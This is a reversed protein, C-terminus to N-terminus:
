KKKEKDSVEAAAEREARAKRAAKEKELDFTPARALMREEETMGAEEEDTGSSDADDSSLPEATGAGAAADASGGAAEKARERKKAKAKKKAAKKKEKQKVERETLVRASPDEPVNSASMSANSPATGGATTGAATRESRERAAAAEVLTLLARDTCSRKIIEYAPELVVCPLRVPASPRSLVSAKTHQLIISCTSWDKSVAALQLPLYYLLKKPHDDSVCVQALAEEKKQVLPSSLLVELFRRNRAMVAAQMPTNIGASTPVVGATVYRLPDILLKDRAIMARLLTLALDQHGVASQVRGVDPYDSVILTVVPQHDIGPLCVSAGRRLLHLALEFRREEIAVSLACSRKEGLGVVPAVFTGDVDNGLVDICFDALLPCALAANEAAAFAQLFSGGKSGGVDATLM